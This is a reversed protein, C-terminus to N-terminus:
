GIEGRPVDSSEPIVPTRAARYSAWTKGTESVRVEVLELYTRCFRRYLWWALHEATTLRPGLGRAFLTNLDSHDWTGDLFEKVRAMDAYDRVFGREDTAEGELVFQVRYSHGHPNRCKHGEPLHPLCHAAEFTFEKTIAFM